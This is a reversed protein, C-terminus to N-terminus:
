LYWHKIIKNSDTMSLGSLYGKKANYLSFLNKVENLIVSAIM